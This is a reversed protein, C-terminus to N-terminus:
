RLLTVDGSRKVERGDPLRMVIRYVYVDSPTPQGNQRGDWGTNSNTEEHVLQGWRNWIKISIVDINEGNIVVNFRQNLEDGNPSFANPIDYVPKLVTVDHSSEDTCGNE